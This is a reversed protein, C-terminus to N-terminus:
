LAHGAHHKGYTVFTRYTSEGSFCCFFSPFRGSLSIIGSDPKELGMILRFLTTKGAGSPAMLCYIGSSTGLAADMTFDMSFDKLVTLSKYSKFVHELCISPNLIDSNM